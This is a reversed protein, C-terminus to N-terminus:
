RQIGLQHWATPDNVGDPTHISTSSHTLHLQLPLPPRRGEFSALAQRRNEAEGIGHGSM